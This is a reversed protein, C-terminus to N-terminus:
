LLKMKNLGFCVIKRLVHRLVFKPKEYTEKIFNDIIM